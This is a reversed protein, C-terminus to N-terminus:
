QLLYKLKKSILHLSGIKFGSSSNGSVSFSLRNFVIPIPWPITAPQLGYATAGWTALGWIFEGWVAAASPATITANCITSYIQNFATFLYTIGNAPVAMDLTCNILENAYVNDFDTIPVTELLFALNNGNINEAIYNQLGDETVYPTVGDEAVYNIFVGTNSSIYQTVGDEAVYPTVGDEAVYSVSGVELYTDSDSPVVNSQWISPAFSNSFIIFTNGYPLALDQEFTHPGTWGARKMDYWYEEIPAGTAAPSGNQTCIRYTNNNYAASIRSPYVSYIFPLALDPDPLGIIGSLSIIRIGDVATFRLGDPCLGLSRPALTGVQDSVLNFALNGLAADGTMQTIYNEKFIIFGDLIAQTTTSITLPSMCTIPSADGIFVAQDSATASLSLTDSWALANGLGFYFRNSFAGVSTPQAPLPNIALNGAFWLPESATGGTITISDSSVSATANHSMTLSTGTVYVTIGDQTATSNASMVISSTGVSVVTTGTPIGVGALAQGAAVGTTDAVNSITASGTTVNGTTQLSFNTGNIITTGAPIAGGTDTIKYGIKVGAIDPNGLIQNSGSVTDGTQTLTFGSIDFGGFANGAEFDFGVDTIVVTSTLAVAQPPTWNGGTPQTAPVNSATVGTIPLFDGSAIDFAFPEDYGPFRSTTVLGYIVGSLQLGASVVSPNNFGTFANLQEVAPRCALLGPTSPDFLLNTISTCAGTKSNDGDISDSTSRPRFRTPFENPTAM